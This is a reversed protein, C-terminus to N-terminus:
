RVVVIPIRSNALVKLVVSGLFMSGVAGRGHSGMAILDFRGKRAVQVIDEAPDGVHMSEEHLRGERALIRRAPRLARAGNHAHFQAMAVPDLFGSVHASLPVDVHLLHLSPENESHPWQRVVFRLARLSHASGDVPILIKM